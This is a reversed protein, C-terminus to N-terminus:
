QILMTWTVTSSAQTPGGGGREGSGSSTEDGETTKNGDTNPIVIGRFAPNTATPYTYAKYGLIKGKLQIPLFELEGRFDIPPSPTKTKITTTKKRTTSSGFGVMAKDIAM